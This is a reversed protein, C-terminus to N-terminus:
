QWIYRIFLYAGFIFLLILAIKAGLSLPASVTPPVQTSIVTPHPQSANLEGWYSPTNITENSDTHSQNIIDVVGTVEPKITVDYNITISDGVVLEKIKAILLTVNSDDVTNNGGAYDSLTLTNILYETEAPLEDYWVLEHADITGENKIVLTYHLWVLKESAIAGSVISDFSVRISGGVPLDFASLAITDNSNNTTTINIDSGSLLTTTGSRLAKRGLLKISANTIGKVHLPLIDRWNTAYSTIHGFNYINVKWSITDGDQVDAM